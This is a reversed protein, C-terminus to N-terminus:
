RPAELLAALQAYGSALEAREGKGQALLWGDSPHIAPPRDAPEVKAGLGIGGVDGFPMLLARGARFGVVECALRRGGQALVRCQGGVALHRPLGGVELLTGMVGTVRGFRRHNPILAIDAVLDPPSM